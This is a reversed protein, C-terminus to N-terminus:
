RNADRLVTSLKLPSLITMSRVTMCWCKQTLAPPPSHNSTLMGPVSVERIVKRVREKPETSESSTVTLAILGRVAPTVGMIERGQRALRSCVRNLLGYPRTPLVVLGGTKGASNQM